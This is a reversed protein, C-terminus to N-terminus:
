LQVSLFSFLLYYSRKEARHVLCNISPHRRLLNHILAIIVLAGSPPVLLSLRTLKKAFAAALYAQLLPSKLCSDLLQLFKARHKAMFISPVLLAYLKEYFNPYELGHQTMLIFLSSLAMVSVVGGIDYSRTLFDCLMLPNSLFPVVAKHTIVLVEKYIDIPLPLRLFAIWAKTFKLKMKRVITDASLVNNNNKDSKLKKDETKLVEFGEKSSFGSGSWMEHESKENNGEQSPINSIIHHIKHIRLEISATPNSEDNGNASMTKDDVLSAFVFLGDSIDKVDLTTALKELSIYTFYRVDIYKFYKSVLLDTVSDVSEASHVITQLLEHYIASHFRGNNGLKVFDMLTDLVVERLTDESQPSFLVHILSRVLEDFIPTLSSVRPPAAAAVGSVCVHARSSLLQQGLSKLEKLSQKRKKTSLMSAM